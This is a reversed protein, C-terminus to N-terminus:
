GRAHPEPIETEAIDKEQINREVPMRYVASEGAIRYTVSLQRYSVICRSLISEFAVGSDYSTAFQRTQSPSGSTRKGASANGTGEM